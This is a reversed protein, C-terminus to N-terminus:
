RLQNKIPTKTTIVTTLNNMRLQQAMALYMERRLPIKRLLKKLLRLKRKKSGCIADGGISM